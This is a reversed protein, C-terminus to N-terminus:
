GQVLAGRPRGSINYLPNAGNIARHEWFRAAAEAAYSTQEKISYLNVWAVDPWWPKKAAHSPWRSNISYSIGLYLLVGDSDFLFYLYMVGFGIPTLEKWKSREPMEGAYTLRPLSWREVRTDV